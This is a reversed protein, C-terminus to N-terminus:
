ETSINPDAQVGGPRDDPLQGQTAGGVGARSGGRRAARHACSSRTTASWTGVDVVGEADLEVIAVKAGKGLRREIAERDLSWEPNVRCYVRGGTQGACAWPGIDGFVVARGSTM